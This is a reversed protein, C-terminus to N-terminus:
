RSVGLEFSFPYKTRGQLASSSDSAGRINESVTKETQFRLEATAALSVPLRLNSILFLDWARM